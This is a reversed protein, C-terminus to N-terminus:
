LFRLGTGAVMGDLLPGGALAHWGGGRPARATAMVGRRNELRRGCPQVASLAAVYKLWGAAAASSILFSALTLALPETCAQACCRSRRLGCEKTVGM